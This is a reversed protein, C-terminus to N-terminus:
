AGFVLMRDADLVAEMLLGLGAIRFGPALKSQDIADSDTNTAFVGRRQAASVCVVLDVGHAQALQSWHQVLQREDTPPASDPLANLVGDHYFFVRLVQHGRNLAARIFAYASDSAQHQHPSAHIQVVLKM